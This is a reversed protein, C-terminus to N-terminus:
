QGQIYASSALAALFPPLFAAPPLAPAAALPLAAAAPLAPALPAALLALDLVLVLLLLALLAVPVEDVLAEVDVLFGSTLGAAGFCVGAAAAGFLGLLASFALV